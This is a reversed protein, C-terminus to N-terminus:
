QARTAKPAWRSPESAAAKKTPRGEEEPHPKLYKALESLVEGETVRTLSKTQRIAVAQQLRLKFKLTVQTNVRPGRGGIDPSHQM